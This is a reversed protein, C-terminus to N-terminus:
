LSQAGCDVLLDLEELVIAGILADTLGLEGLVREVVALAEQAQRITRCVVVFDDAYRVFYYGAAHLQWDLHNLVINALLPSIVGGQPTGITTPKFVGDEMVGAKLFGEVL